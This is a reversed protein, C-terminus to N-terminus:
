NHALTNSHLSMQETKVVNTIQWCMRCTYRHYGGRDRLLEVRLPRQHCRFDTLSHCATWWNRHHGKLLSYNTATEAGMSLDYSNFICFASSHIIIIVIMIIIIMMMM